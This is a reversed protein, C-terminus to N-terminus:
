SRSSSSCRVRHVGDRLRGRDGAARDADLHHRVELLDHAFAAAMTPMALFFSFEAAAPAISGADGDGGVITAGSRSVGPILALAQCSASRRARARGAPQRRRARGAGPRLREVLLMVIGGVIFAVAIVALSDYCCASSSTPSCARRRRAGARVGRAIMSRSAGRRPGRRCARRRRRAIKARYLWM